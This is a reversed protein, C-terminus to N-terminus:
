GAAPSRVKVYASTAPDFELRSDRAGDFVNEPLAAAEVGFTVFVHAFMYDGEPIELVRMPTPVVDGLNPLRLRSGAFWDEDDKPRVGVEDASAFM